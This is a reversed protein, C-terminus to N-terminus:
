SQKRGSTAAMLLHSTRWQAASPKSPCRTSTPNLTSSAPHLSRNASPTTWIFSTSKTTTSISSPRVVGASRSQLSLQMCSAATQDAFSIVYLKTDFLLANVLCTRTSTLSVQIGQCEQQSQKQLTRGNRKRVAASVPQQREVRSVSGLVEISLLRLGSESADSICTM